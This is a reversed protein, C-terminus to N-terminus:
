PGLEVVPDPVVVTGFGPPGAECNVSVIGYVQDCSGLPYSLYM